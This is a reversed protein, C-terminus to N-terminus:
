NSKKRNVTRRATQKAFGVLFGLVWHKGVSITPPVFRVSIKRRLRGDNHGEQGYRFGNDFYIKPLHAHYANRRSPIRVGSDGAQSAGDFVDYPFYESRLSIVEYAGVGLM